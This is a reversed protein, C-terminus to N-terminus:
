HSTKKRTFIEAKFLDTAKEYILKLSSIDKFQISYPLKKLNINGLLM